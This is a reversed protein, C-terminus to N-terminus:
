TVTRDVSFSPLSSTLLSCMSRGESRTFPKIRETTFFIRGSVGSVLTDVNTAVGFGRSMLSAMEGAPSSGNESTPEERLAIRYSILISNPPIVPITAGSMPFCGGFIWIQIM